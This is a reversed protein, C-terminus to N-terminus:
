ATVEGGGTLVVRPEAGSAQATVTLALNRLGESAPASPDDQVTVHLTDGPWVQGSYRVFYRRLALPGAVEAIATAASGATFLGHAFVSPYGARTAFVEDHHVPNFDGGAGAYRVIDTRTLPGITREALVPQDTM